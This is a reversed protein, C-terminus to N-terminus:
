RFIIQSMWRFDRASVPRPIFSHPHQEYEQGIAHFLSLPPLVPDRLLSSLREDRVSRRGILCFSTIWWVTGDLVQRTVLRLALSYFKCTECNRGALKITVYFFLFSQSSSIAQKGQYSVSRMSFSADLLEEITAYTNTVATVNRGLRQRAVIPPICLCVCVSCRPRM